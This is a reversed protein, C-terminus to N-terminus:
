ELPLLNRLRNVVRNMHGAVVGLFHENAADCCRQHVVLEKLLNAPAAHSEDLAQQAFRRRGAELEILEFLLEVRLVDMACGDLVQDRVVGDKLLDLRLILVGDMVRVERVCGAAAYALAM